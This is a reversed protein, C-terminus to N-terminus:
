PAAARATQVSDGRAAALLVRQGALEVEAADDGSSSQYVYAPGPEGEYWIRGFLSDFTAEPHGVEM